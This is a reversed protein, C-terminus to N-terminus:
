RALRNPRAYNIETSASKRRVSRRESRNEACKSSLELCGTASAGIWHKPSRSGAVESRNGGLSAVIRVYRDPDFSEVPREREPDAVPPM